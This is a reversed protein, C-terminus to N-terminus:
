SDAIMLVVVFSASKGMVDLPLVSCANEFLNWVEGHDRHYCPSLVEVHSRTAAHVVFM